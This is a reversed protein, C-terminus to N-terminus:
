KWKRQKTKCQNRPCRVKARPSGEIALCGLGEFDRSGVCLPLHGFFETQSQGCAVSWQLLLRRRQRNHRLWVIKRPFVQIQDPQPHKGPALATQFVIPRLWVWLTLPINKTIPWLQLHNARRGATGCWQRKPVLIFLGLNENWWCCEDERSKSVLHQM